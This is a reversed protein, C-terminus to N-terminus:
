GAVSVQEWDAILEPAEVKRTMNLRKRGCCHSTMRNKDNSDTVILIRVKTCDRYPGMHHVPLQFPATDM